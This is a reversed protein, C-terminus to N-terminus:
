HSSCSHTHTRSSYLILLSEREETMLQRSVIHSEQKCAIFFKYLLFITDFKINWWSEDAISFRSIQLQWLLKYLRCVFFVCFLCVSTKQKHHMRSIVSASSGQPIVTFHSEAVGMQSEIYLSPLFLTQSTCWHQLMRRRLVWSRFMELHYCFTEQFCPAATWDFGSMEWTHVKWSRLFNILSQDSFMRSENREEGQARISRRICCGHKWSQPSANKLHNVSNTLPKNPKLFVLVTEAWLPGETQDCLDFVGCKSIVHNQSSLMQTDELQPVIQGIVRSVRVRLIQWWTICYVHLVHWLLLHPHLTFCSPQKLWDFYNLVQFSCRPLYWFGFLLPSEFPHMTQKSASPATKKM